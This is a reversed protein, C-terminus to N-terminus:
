ASSTGHQLQVQCLSTKRLHYSSSNGRITSLRPVYISILILMVNKGPSKDAKRPGARNAATTTQPPTRHIDM